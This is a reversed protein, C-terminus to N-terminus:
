KDLNYTFTLGISTPVVMAIVVFGLIRFIDLKSNYGMPNISNIASQVDKGNELAKLTAYFFRQLALDAQVQYVVSLTFLVMSVVLGFSFINTLGELLEKSAANKLKVLSIVCVMASAFLLDSGNVNSFSLTGAEIGKLLWVVIMPILPLAVTSTFWNIFRYM